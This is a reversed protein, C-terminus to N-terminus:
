LPQGPSEGLDAAKKPENDEEGRVLDRVDMSEAGLILAAVSEAAARDMGPTVHTYTQLTFAANAHGLRESIVKAPVGNKLAATAYSHRVDHLRIRPLGAARCHKHFLATITDPHLPRGDPWVFLLSPAQGLLQREEEWVEIFKELAARTAPDLALVREGAATKTESEQVRGDVVM